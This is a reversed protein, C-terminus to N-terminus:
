KKEKAMTNEKSGDLHIFTNMRGFTTRSSNNRSNHEVELVIWVDDITVHSMYLPMDTVTYLVVVYNYHIVSLFNNEVM